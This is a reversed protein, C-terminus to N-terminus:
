RPINSLGLSVKEKMDRFFVQLFGDVSENYIVNLFRMNVFLILLFAAVFFLM